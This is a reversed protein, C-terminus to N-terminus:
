TGLAESIEAPETTRVREVSSGPPGHLWLELEIVSLKLLAAVNDTGAVKSDQIPVVTDNDAEIPPEADPTVQVLVPPPEKAGFTFSKVGSYVGVFPSFETFWDMTVAVTASGSPDPGQKLKASSIEM